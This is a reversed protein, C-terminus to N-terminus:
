GSAKVATLQPGLADVAQAVIAKTDLGAQAYMREPKDQDIFRDPLVMTRIKLGRDLLGREALLRLVHSGFGGVAGEEVTVMIEHERALRLILEEDLPKCFRADAVTTSLGRAALEEAAATAEGLRTGLSLLAIRNGERVIRGKGIALPV